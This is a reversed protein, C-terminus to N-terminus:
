LPPTGADTTSGVGAVKPPIKRDTPTMPGVDEPGVVPKDTVATTVPTTSTKSAIASDAVHGRNNQTLLRLLSPLRQLLLILERRERLNSGAVGGVDTRQPQLFVVTRTDSVSETTPNGIQVSRKGVPEKRKDCGPQGEEDSKNSPFVSPIKPTYFTAVGTSGDLIERDGDVSGGTPPLSKLAVPVGDSASPKAAVM